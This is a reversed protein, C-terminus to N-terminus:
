RAGRNRRAIRVLQDNKLEYLTEFDSSVDLFFATGRFRLFSSSLGFLDVRRQEPAVRNIADVSIFGELTPWGGFPRSAIIDAAEQLDISGNMAMMLLPAQDVVLTNLNFVGVNAGARVCINPGMRAIVDKSYGAVARLESLEALPQGSTRYPVARSVYYADEFGSVRPTQGPDMWDILADALAEAEFESFELALLLDMYLDLAAPPVDDEAEISALANLNFCNSAEELRGVIRGGSAELTIPTQLVPLNATLAGQTATQLDQVAALGAEEAGVIQWSVRSRADGASGRDLARLSADTMATAIIAMVAVILLVSLLAAGDESRFGKM